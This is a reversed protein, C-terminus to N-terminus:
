WQAVHLATSTMRYDAPPVVAYSVFGLVHDWTGQSGIAGGSTPVRRYGPGHWGTLYVVVDRHAPVCLRQIAPVASCLVLGLLPIGGVRHDQTGEQLLNGLTM